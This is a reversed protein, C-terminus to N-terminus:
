NQEYIMYADLGTVTVDSTPVTESDFSVTLKVTASQGAKLEQDQAVPTGATIVSGTADATTDNAYVLTYTLGNCVTTASESSTSATADTCVIGDDKSNIKYTSIKADITGENVIDFTYSVADGPKTLEVNLGSVLTDTLTPQTTVNATGVTSEASLNAFKVKWTSSKVTATSKIDLRQSLSAYAVTLGILGVVLVGLLVNRVKESGM